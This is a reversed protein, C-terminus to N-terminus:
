KEAKAPPLVTILKQGDTTIVTLVDARLRNAFVGSPKVAIQIDKGTPKGDDGIEPVVRKVLKAAEAAPLDMPQQLPQAM